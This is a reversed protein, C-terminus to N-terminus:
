GGRAERLALDRLEQIAPLVSLKVIEDSSEKARSLAWELAALKDNPHTM